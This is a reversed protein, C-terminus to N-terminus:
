SFIQPQFGVTKEKKIQTKREIVGGTILGAAFTSVTTITTDASDTTIATDAVNTTFTTDATFTANASDTTFANKDTCFLFM